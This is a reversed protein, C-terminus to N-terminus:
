ITAATVAHKTTSRENNGPNAELFRWNAILAERYGRLTARELLNSEQARLSCLKEFTQRRVREGAIATLACIPYLVFGPVVILAVDALFLVGPFNFLLACAGVITGIWSIASLALLWHYLCFPLGLVMLLVPTTLGQLLPLLLNTFTETFSACLCVSSPSSFNGDVSYCLDTQNNFSSCIGVKFTAGIRTWATCCQVVAAGVAITTLTLLSWQQVRHVWSSLAATGFLITLMLPHVANEPQDIAFMAAVFVLQLAALVFYPWRLYQFFEHSHLYALFRREMDDNAFRLRHRSWCRWACQEVVIHARQETIADVNADISASSLRLAPLAVSALRPPSRTMAATVARDSVQVDADSVSRLRRSSRDLIGPTRSSMKAAVVPEDDNQGFAVSLEAFSPRKCPNFACCRRGLESYQHVPSDDNNPFPPFAWRGEIADGLSAFLAAHGLKRNSVGNRVLADLTGVDNNSLVLECVIVGFAYVDSAMGDAPKADCVLSADRRECLTEPPMYAPTGCSGDGSNAGDLFQFSVGFDAVRVTRDDTLLVNEPKLDRHLVKCGHLYQMASAIESAVRRVESQWAAAATGPLVDTLMARLNTSCYEQVIFLPLYVSDGGTSDNAHRCLGLFRVIHPHSLQALVSVETALEELQESGSRLNTYLQKAAVTKDQYAAKWVVGGGGAAVKVDLTLRSSDLEWFNHSEAATSSNNRLPVMEQDNQQRSLWDVLRSQHFPNAEADLTGVNADVVRSWYFLSRSASEHRLALWLLVGSCAILSTGLEFATHVIGALAFMDSFALSVLAIVVAALLVAVNFPVVAALVRAAVVDAIVLAKHCVWLLGIASVPGYISFGGLTATGVFYAVPAVVVAIGLTAARLQYQVTEQCKQACSIGLGVITLLVVAAAGITLVIWTDYMFVEVIETASVFTGLICVLATVIPPVIKARKTSKFRQLYLAEIKRDEFLVM